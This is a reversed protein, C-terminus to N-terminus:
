RGSVDLACRSCSPSSVAYDVASAVVGPRDRVRDRVTLLGRYDLRLLSLAPVFQSGTRSLQERETEYQLMDCLAVCTGFNKELDSQVTLTPCVGVCACVFFPVRDHVDDVDQCWNVDCM